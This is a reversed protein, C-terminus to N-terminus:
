WSRRVPASVPRASRQDPWGRRARDCAGTASFGHIASLAFLSTLGIGLGIDVERSIPSDVYVSDAAGIALGTRVVSYGALATDVVPPVRSTSCDPPIAATPAEPEPGTTFLLSCGM